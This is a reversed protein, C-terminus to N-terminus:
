YNSHGRERYACLKVVFLGALNSSSQCNIIWYIIHKERSFSLISGNRKLTPVDLCYIKAIDM